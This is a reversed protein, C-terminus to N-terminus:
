NFSFFFFVSFSASGARSQLLRQLLARGFRHWLLVLWWNLLSCCAIISFSCLFLLGKSLFVPYCNLDACMKSIVPQDPEAIETGAWGIWVMRDAQVGQMASVLGGAAPTHTWGRNTSNAANKSCRVFSMPLRNAVLLLRGSFAFGGKSEISERMDRSILPAEPGGGASSVTQSSQSGLLAAPSPAALSTPASVSREVIGPPSMAGSSVNLALL